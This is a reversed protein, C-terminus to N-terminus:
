KTISVTDPISMLFSELTPFQSRNFAIGCGIMDRYERDLRGIHIGNKETLLVSRLDKKLNELKDAM